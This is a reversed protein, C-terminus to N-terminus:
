KILLMRKTQFFTPTRLEYFYVGSAVREGREGLGDWPFFNNGEYVKGRFLTKVKEGLTNYITVEADTSQPSYFQITTSPNFPNPYNQYLLFNSPRTVLIPTSTVRSTDGDGYRFSLLSDPANYPNTRRIGGQDVGEIYYHVLTGVLQKPIIVLFQDSDTTPSMQLSAFPRGGDLSYRLHMGLNDVGTNSAAYLVIINLSDNFFLQPVNSFVLGNSLLAAKANIVGWGYFNDPATARSATNRLADLVHIPTFEPHASLVLSAVGAALPCSFSTGARSGYSNSGSSSAVYVGVGPAMLDPKIRGDNTPGISSFSVRVGSLNVAGASIISDADAPAIISGVVGGGNGMSNVVVVGKRAAAVAAKTTVATRGNFDGRSYSYGTGDDFTTYGLSSSVVDVGRSEMWEIAAVWNDEEIQTETLVYETKGLIFSAGYAPGILQGPMFGGVTSLTSTGHSDQGPPDNVEDATNDDNFIFDREAIVRINRLAEHTKWRYGTDLM